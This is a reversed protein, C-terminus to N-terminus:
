KRSSYFKHDGIKRCPTLEKEWAPRVYIAHYHTAHELGKIMIKSENVAYAIQLAKTWAEKEVPREPKGDCWYSFQCKNRVPNGRWYRGDKVVGCATAPWRSDLVRNKIVIGVAIQGLTGQNRAEYYIAEAMCRIEGSILPSASLRVPILLLIIVFGKM